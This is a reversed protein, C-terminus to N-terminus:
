AAFRENFAAAGKEDDFEAHLTVVGAAGRTSRFNRASFTSHDLWAHMSSLTNVLDTENVAIDVSRM